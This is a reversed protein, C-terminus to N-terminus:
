KGHKLAKGLVECDRFPLCIEYEITKAETKVEIKEHYGSPSKTPAPDLVHSAVTRDTEKTIPQKEPSKRPLLM